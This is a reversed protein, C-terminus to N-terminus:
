KEDDINEGGGPMDGEWNSVVESIGGDSESRYRNEVQVRTWEKM